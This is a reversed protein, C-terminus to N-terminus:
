HFAQKPFNEVDVLIVYVVIVELVVLDEFVHTHKVYASKFESTLAGYVHWEGGQTNCTFIFVSLHYSIIHYLIICYLM